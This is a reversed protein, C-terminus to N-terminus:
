ELGVKKAQNGIREVLEAGEKTNMLQHVMGMLQAMDGSAAAHAAEKVSGQQQLLSMLKQAEGSRALQTIAKQNKALTEGPNGAPHNM